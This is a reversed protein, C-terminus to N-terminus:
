RKPVTLVDGINIANVDKVQPNLKLLGARDTGYTRAIADFSDGSKVTYKQTAATGGGGGGTPRARLYGSLPDKINKDSLDGFSRAWRQVEDARALNTAGAKEVQKLRQGEAYQDGTLHVIVGPAYGIVPHYGPVSFTRMINYDEPTPPPPPPDVPDTGSSGGGTFADYHSRVRDLFWDFPFGPGPDWHNTGGIFQSVDNHTMLGRVAPGGAYNQRIQAGSLMRIEGRSWGDRVYDWAILRADSELAAQQSGGDLWQARSKAARGAVEYGVVHPNALGGVHGSYRRTSCARVRQTPDSMGHPALGENDLWGGPASLERAVGPKPDCELSHLVRAWPRGAPFQGYSTLWGSADYTIPSGPLAGAPTPRDEEGTQSETAAYAATLVDEPILHLDGTNMRDLLADTYEEDTLNGERGPDDQHLPM